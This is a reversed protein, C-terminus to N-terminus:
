SDQTTRVQLCFYLTINDKLRKVIIKSLKIGSVCRLWYILYISIWVYTRETRKIKYLLDAISLWLALWSLFVLIQQLTQLLIRKKQQAKGSLRVSYQCPLLSKNHVYQPYSLVMHLQNLLDVNGNIFCRRNLNVHQDKCNNIKCFSTTYKYHCEYLITDHMGPQIYVHICWTNM